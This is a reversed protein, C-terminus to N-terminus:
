SYMAIDRNAWPTKMRGDNTFTWLKCDLTRDLFSRADESFSPVEAIEPIESLKLLWKVEVMVRYRILGYESFFPRLDKVKQEYRGDLPSMATLSSLELDPVGEVGSRMDVAASTKAVEMSVRCRLAGASSDLPPRALTSLGGSPRRQSPRASCPVSPRRHVGGASAGCSSSSRLAAGFEMPECRAGVLAAASTRRPSVKERAPSAAVVALDSPPSVKEPAPSVKEPPSV